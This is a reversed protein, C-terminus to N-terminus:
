PNREFSGIDCAAGGDNNGDKPRRIGRQDQVPPPCTGDTVADIAPSGAVLAHTRTPGGNNALTTNLVEALTVGAPPVIDTAGKSFGSIGPRANFGFLNFNNAKVVGYRPFSRIEQGTDATNGSVLTKKLTVTANFANYVGGGRNAASNRTITSNNIAFQTYNNNFVGGGDSDSHNGSITSNTVAVPGSNTYVGGGATASNGSITSRTLTLNGDSRNYVGGGNSYQGTTSNGSITSNTISAAGGNWVGGGLAGRGSTSNGSITSNRVTLRGFFHFVGGGNAGDGSTSNGSITSGTITLNGGSNLVGAGYGGSYLASTKGGRVTANNLTLDGAEGAGDVAFIRFAPAGRTRNITAGNGNITIPSIVVPLGNPGTSGNVEDSNNVATLTQTSNAPLAITDVGSGAPCGGTATDTNAATIADALSCVRITRATQAGETVNITGALAPAQGLTLLLAMGALSRKWQRQMTRRVQRPLAALKTYQAAFLPLIAHENGALQLVLTANGTAQALQERWATLVREYQTGGHCQQETHMNGGDHIILNNLLPDPM